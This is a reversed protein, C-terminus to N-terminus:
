QIKRWKNKINQFKITQPRKEGNYYIDVIVINKLENKFDFMLYSTKTIDLKTKAYPIYYIEQNRNHFKVNGTKSNELIVEDLNSIEFEKYFKKDKTSFLVPSWESDFNNISVCPIINAKVKHLFKSLISKTLFNSSSYNPNIVNYDSSCQYLFPVGCDYGKANIPSLLLNKKNIKNFNIQAIILDSLESYDIEKAEAVLKGFYEKKEKHFNTCDPKTPDPCGKYEKVGKYKPCLDEFDPIGDGDIDLSDKIQCNVASSVLIM